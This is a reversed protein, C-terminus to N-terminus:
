IFIKEKSFYPTLRMLENPLSNLELRSSGSGQSEKDRVRDREREGERAGLASAEPALVAAGAGDDGENRIGIFLQSRALPPPLPPRPPEFRTASRQWQGSAMLSRLLSAPPNPLSEEM